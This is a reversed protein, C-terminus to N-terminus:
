RDPDSEFFFSNPFIIRINSLKFSACIVISVFNGRKRRHREIEAEDKKKIGTRSVKNEKKNSEKSEPKTGQKIRNHNQLESSTNNYSRNVGDIQYTAARKSVTEFRRNEGEIQDSHHQIKM